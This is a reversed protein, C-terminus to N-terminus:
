YMHWYIFIESPNGARVRSFPYDLLPRSHQTILLDDATKGTVLMSHHIHGSRNQFQIVDGAELMMPDSVRTGRGSIQVFEAFNQAGGWTHSPRRWISNFFWNSNEGVLLDGATRWGGAYMAQSVFNTCDTGSYAPFTRNFSYAWTRAYSVAAVRNLGVNYQAGPLGGPLGAAADRHEIASGADILTGADTSQRAIRLTTFQIPAISQGASIRQIAAEAEREQVDNTNSMKSIAKLHSSERSQQIVHTLEHVLLCRGDKTQPMYQEAGFVVDKGVTYARSNVARASEAARADTHVRVQSFDHGFRSEMFTRTSADLPRGPSSLVEHVIPPVASTAEMQSKMPGRMLNTQASLSTSKSATKAQVQAQMSM